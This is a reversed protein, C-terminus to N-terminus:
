RPRASTVSKPFGGLAPNPFRGRTTARVRWRKIVLAFRKAVDPVDLVGVLWLYYLDIHFANGTHTM